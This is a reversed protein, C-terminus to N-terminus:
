FHEKLFSNTFMMISVYPVMRASVPTVGKFLVLPGEDKVISVLCHIPGTYRPGKQCQTQTQLRTKVVDLPTSLVASILGAGVASVVNLLSKTAIVAKLVDRLHDYSAMQGLTVVVARMSLPLFGSYLGAIGEELAITRLSVFCACAALVSKLRSTSPPPADAAPQAGAAQARVLVVEVPCGVLSGGVGAIVAVALRSGVRKILADYVAFRTGTFVFQRLLAAGLGAFFGCFGGDRFVTRVVGCLTPPSGTSDQIQLRVKILDLPHSFAAGTMASIAGFFFSRSGGGSAVALFGIAIAIITAVELFQRFSRRAASTPGPDDDKVSEDREPTPSTSAIKIPAHKRFLGVFPDMNLDCRSRLVTTDAVPTEEEDEADTENAVPRSVPHWGLFM